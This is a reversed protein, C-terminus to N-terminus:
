FPTFLEIVAFFIEKFYKAPNKAFSSILLAIFLYSMIVILGTTLLFLWGVLDSRSITFILAINIGLSIFTYLIYKQKISM